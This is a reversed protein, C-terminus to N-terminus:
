KNALDLAYRGEVAVVLAGVATPRAAWEFAPTHQCAAVPAGAALPRVARCLTQMFGFVQRGSNHSFVHPGAAAWCAGALLAGSVAAQNAICPQAADLV